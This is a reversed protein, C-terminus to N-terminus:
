PYNFFFFLFASAAPSSFNMVVTTKMTNDLHQSVEVEVIQM